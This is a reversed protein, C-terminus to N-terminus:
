NNWWTNWLKNNLGKVNGLGPTYRSTASRSLAKSSDKASNSRMRLSSPSSIVARTISGNTCAAAPM